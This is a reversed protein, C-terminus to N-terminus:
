LLFTFTVVNRKFAVEKKFQKLMSLQVFTQGCLDLKDEIKRSYLGQTTLIPAVVNLMIVNLM